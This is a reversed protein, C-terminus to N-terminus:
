KLNGLGLTSFRDVKYEQVLCLSELELKTLDEYIAIWIGSKKFFDPIKVNKKLTLLTSVEAVYSM